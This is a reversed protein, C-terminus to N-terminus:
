SRWWLMAAFICYLCIAIVYGTCMAALVTIEAGPLFMALVLPAGAAIVVINLPMTGYVGIVLRSVPSLVGRICVLFIALMALAKLEDYYVSDFFYLFVIAFIHQFFQELLLFVLALAFSIVCLLVALSAGRSERGLKVLQTQFVTIALSTVSDILSLIRLLIAIAAVSEGRINTAWIPLQQGFSGLITSPIYNRWVGLRLNFQGQTAEKRFLEHALLSFLFLLFFQIGYPVVILWYWSDSDLEDGFYFLTAVLVSPRIVADVVSALFSDGVAFYVTQHIANATICFGYLAAAVGFWVGVWLCLIAFVTASFVLLIPFTAKFVSLCTPVVGHSFEYALYQGLAGNLPVFCLTVFALVTFYQDLVDSSLFSALLTLAYFSM